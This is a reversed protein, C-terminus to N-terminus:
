GKVKHYDHSLLHNNGWFFVQLYLTIATHTGNFSAPCQKLCRGLKLHVERLMVLAFLETYLYPITEVVAWCLVTFSAQRSSLRKGSQPLQFLYTKLELEVM